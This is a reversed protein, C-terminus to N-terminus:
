AEVGNNQMWNELVVLLWINSWLITKDGKLFRQWLDNLYDANFISRSGLATIKEECFTKLEGKMWTSWPFTFGMKRRHVVEDPLRPAIANVLLSKSFKPYKYQDPTRILFEILEHDFFPVRVELASAMSMQDTDKLLVNQTYGTLEGVTVQSLLPLSRISQHQDALLQKITNHNAPLATSIQTIAQASLLKRFNPYINEFSFDDATILTKLRDTKADAARLALLRSAASRILHPTKWLTRYKSLASIQKFVSYGAFLEDGGLGSLAVTIGAAKTVKSVVYSNPGDGTPSDMALLASPLEELFREPRLLIPHHKTKYKKAIISSFRSEDYEKEDFVVSFTSIPEESIESMLAVIASSDIGGSLFAGLPVDSIMRREVSKLLLSEIKKHISKENRYEFGNQPINAINWYKHIKFRGEKYVGYSGAPLQYVNEIISYPSQPAQYNLYDVVAKKSLRRPILNTKLLARIESAFIFEGGVEYYYFPKIGVRDRAVFLKKEQNDWIALAFMGNLRKLFDAGWKIYAALVVETDGSTKFPYDDIERKVEEFNYIEGNFVMAYRDSCDYFPQNSEFNLDIISLRRHGLAVGDDIFYGSANPGRHALADTM